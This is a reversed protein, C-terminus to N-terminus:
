RDRSCAFFREILEAKGISRIVTGCPCFAPQLVIESFDTKLSAQLFRVRPSIM